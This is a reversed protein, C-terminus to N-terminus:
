GTHDCGTMTQSEFKKWDRDWTVVHGNEPPEIENVLQIYEVDNSTFHKEIELIAVRNLKLKVDFGPHFHVKKVDYISGHIGTGLRVSFNIDLNTRFAKIVCDAVTLVFSANVVTAVCRFNKNYLISAWFKSFLLINKSKLPVAIGQSNNM